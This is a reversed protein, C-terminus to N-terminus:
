ETYKQGASFHQSNDDTGSKRVLGHSEASM